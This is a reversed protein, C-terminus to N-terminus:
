KRWITKGVIDPIVWGDGAMSKEIIKKQDEFAKRILDVHASSWVEWFGGGPFNQQFFKRGITGVKVDALEFEFDRLKTYPRVEWDELGRAFGDVIYLEKM